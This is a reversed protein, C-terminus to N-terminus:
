GKRPSCPLQFRGTRSQATETYIAPTATTPSATPYSCLDSTSAATTTPGWSWRLITQDANTASITTAAFYRKVFGCSTLAIIRVEIEEYGSGPRGVVPQEQYSPPVPVRAGPPRPAPAQGPGPYSGPLPQQQQPLRQSYRDQSPSQQRPPPGDLPPESIKMRDLPSTLTEPSSPPLIAKAPPKPATQRIKNINRWDTLLRNANEMSMGCFDPVLHTCHDHCTIGCASDSCRRSNKRGLPLMYGCHCCWSAGM